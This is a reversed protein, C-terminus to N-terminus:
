AWKIIWLNVQNVSIPNKKYVSYGLSSFLWQFDKEDELRIAVECYIKAEHATKNIIEICSAFKNQILDKVKTDDRFSKTMRSIEAAESAKM